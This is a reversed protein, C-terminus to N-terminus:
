LFREKLKNKNKELFFKLIPLDEIKIKGIFLDNIDNEEAFEKIKFYGKFYVYDKTYGGHQSTDCLNRKARLSLTFADNEKFKYKRLTHFLEYFSQTQAFHTALVRGAYIFLQAKSLVHNLDEAYVALGEETELYNATGTQLLKIGFNKCNWYRMYHVGIEHVRLRELDLTTFAELPNIKIEGEKSNINLKNALPKFIIKIDEGTKRKVEKQLEEGVKQPTIRRFRVKERKYTKCFQQAKKVIEPSPIGKAQIIYQTSSTEGWHQFAKAIYYRELSKEKLLKKFGFHDNKIDIKFSRLKEIDADKYLLKEYTFQPNYVEKKELAAFFKEKEEKSNLPKPYNDDHSDPIIKSLKKEIEMVEELYAKM